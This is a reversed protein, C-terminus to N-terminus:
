SVRRHMLVASAPCLNAFQRSARLGAPARDRPTPAFGLRGALEAITTTLLWADTIGAAALGTLLWETMAASWGRGRQGPLVVLSRLLAAGPGCPEAGIFGIPAGDPTWFQFFRRGPEALDDVPLGAAALTAALDPCGAATVEEVVMASEDLM